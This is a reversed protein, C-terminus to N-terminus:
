LLHIVVMFTVKGLVLFHAMHQINFTLYANLM